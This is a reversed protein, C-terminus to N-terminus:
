RHARLLREQYAVTTGLMSNISAARARIVGYVSAVAALDAEGRRLRCHPHCSRDRLEHGSSAVTQTM